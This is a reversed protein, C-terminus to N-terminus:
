FMLLTGEATGAALGSHLRDMLADMSELSYVQDMQYQAYFPFTASEYLTSDANQVAACLEAVKAVQEEELFRRDYTMPVAFTNKDERMTSGYPMEDEAISEEKKGCGTLVPAACLLALTLATLRKIANMHFWEELFAAACERAAACLM